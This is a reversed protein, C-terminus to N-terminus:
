GRIARTWRGFPMDAYFFGGATEYRVDCSVRKGKTSKPLTITGRPGAFSAGDARWVYQTADAGRIDRARCTLRRGVRRVGKITQRGNRFGTVSPRPAPDHTIALRDSELSTFVTPTGKEGCPVLGFSVLGVLKREVGRGPEADITAPGGSDGLCANKGSRHAGACFMLGREFLHRKRNNYAKECGRSSWPPLTAGRLRSPPPSDGSRDTSGWGTVFVGKKFFRQFEHETAFRAPQPARGHPGFRIRHALTLLAVDHAFASRRKGSFRLYRPDVSIASVRVRRTRALTASGYGVRFKEPPAIAPNADAGVGEDLVCHAATLVHRADRISGGCAFAFGEFEHAEFLAIQWPHQRLPVRHGGIIAARVEHRQPPAKSSAFSPLVLTAVLALVLARKTVGTAAAPPRYRRGARFRTSRSASAM